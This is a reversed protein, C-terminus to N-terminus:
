KLFWQALPIYNIGQNTQKSQVLFWENVHWQIPQPLEIRAPRTAKRILTIHPKFTREDFLFEAESLKGKISDVLSFLENPFRKAQMYIIQSKKWYGIVELSIEFEKESIAKMAEQLPEIRHISVNGLFLLTLHRHTKKVKYGGCIPELLETQRTLQDQAAQNPFIAFFVRLPRGAIHSCRGIM